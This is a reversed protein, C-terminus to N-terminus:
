DKNVNVSDNILSFYFFLIIMNNYSFLIFQNKEFLFFSLEFTNLHVSYLNNFLQLNKTIKFLQFLDM